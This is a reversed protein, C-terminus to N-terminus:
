IYYMEEKVETKERHRDVLDQLTTANLVGGVVDRLESWVERTVCFDARECIEPNDVCETPAISGELLQMVEGLRIDAPDRALSVGGKPGKVSRVLGGAILPSVLHELYSLSIQQSCAIDKLSVPEEGYHLALELLARTGYRGKTSLKMEGDESLEEYYNVLVIM